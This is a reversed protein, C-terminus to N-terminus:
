DRLRAALREGSREAIDRIRPADTGEGLLHAGHESRDVDEHVVRPDIWEPREVLEVPRRPPPIM